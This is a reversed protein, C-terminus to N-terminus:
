WWIESNPEMNDRNNLVANEIEELLVYWEMQGLGGMQKHCRVVNRYMALRSPALLLAERFRRLAEQPRGLMELVDGMHYLATAKDGDSNAMRLADEGAAAADLPRGMSRLLITLRLSWFYRMEESIGSNIEESAEIANQLHMLSQERLHATPASKRIDLEQLALGLRAEALIREKLPHTTDRGALYERLTSILYDLDAGEPEAFMSTTGLEISPFTAGLLAFLIVIRLSAM